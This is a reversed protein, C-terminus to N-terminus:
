KKWRKLTPFLTKLKERAEEATKCEGDKILFPICSEIQEEMTEERGFQGNPYCFKCYDYDPSGDANKGYFEDSLPMGCSQCIHENGHYGGTVEIVNNDPDYLHIKCM